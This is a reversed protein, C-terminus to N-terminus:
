FNAISVFEWSEYDGVKGSKYRITCAYNTRTTAGFGNQADVYSSYVVTRSTPYYKVQGDLWPFDATSPSRLRKKMEPQCITISVARLKGDDLAEKLDDDRTNRVTEAQGVNKSPKQDISSSVRESAIAFLVFVLGTILFRNRWSSTDVSNAKWFAPLCAVAAIIYLVGALFSREGLLIVFAALGLFTAASYCILKALFREIASNKPM